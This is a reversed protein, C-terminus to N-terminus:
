KGAQVAFLKGYTRVFMAGEGIAPTTRCLEGLPNTALRKMEDAVAIVHINGSEDACFIKEGDSVPSGFCAGEVGPVRGKWVEEGTAAKVCTVIGADDWLYAKDGVVILSPIHPVNREIRWVEELEGGKLRMAVCHKPNATFGCTGIVLDKYVVPSSIARENTDTNFVSKEAVVSGDKPDVMTFGHQWNVFALLQRGDSELVCPVSYSIRQSHREVTWKVEGTNADLALLNGGGKEQDNNLIVLEGFLMPSAAFGHGGSVPGLDAQWLKEGAHSFAAMSLKEPTGWSFVVRKDDVAPTTSAPSNFRHGQHKQDVAVIEQQWLISGDKTSVCLPIWSQAKELAVSKQSAVKNNGKGKKPKPPPESAALLFIREGWVVPSGHGIGPLDIKWRFNSDSWEAPINAATAVGSGNVGRFRPWNEASAARVMLGAAAFIILVRIM